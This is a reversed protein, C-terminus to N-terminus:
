PHAETSTELARRLSAAVVVGAYRGDDDLRVLAETPADVLASLAGRLNDGSGVTVGLPHREGHEAVWGLPRREDDLMVRWPLALPEGLGQHGLPRLTRDVSPAERAELEDVRMLALRKLERDPGLFSEVFADAPHALLRQPTDFQVLRGGQRFIGIRDGLRMAEDIDHTVLVLTKHLRRQLELLEGQLRERVVPDIAAFPEDLLLIPPDAALARALGVRSQQGGSLQHPFRRLIEPDLGVLEVLEEIRARIRSREWGLLRPVTAINDAVRRHPFLGAHQMVYGIRRRLQIVDEDGVDRGEVLVRGESPADLRNIMRLSTTKGCGSPGVLVCIEGARITLDLADVARIRSGPFRKSVGEFRIM